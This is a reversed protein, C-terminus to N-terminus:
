ESVPDQSDMDLLTVPNSVMGMDSWRLIDMFRRLSFSELHMGVTVMDVEFDVATGMTIDMDGM